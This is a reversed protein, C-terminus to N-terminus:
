IINKLISDITILKARDDKIIKIKKLIGIYIKENTKLGGFSFLDEPELELHKLIKELTEATLFGNGTEIISLANVSLNLMEAFKMQSIGKEKRIQSIKAGLLKKIDGM